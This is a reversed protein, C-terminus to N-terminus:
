PKVLRDKRTEQSTSWASTSLKKQKNIKGHDMKRTSRDEATKENLLESERVERRRKKKKPWKSGIDTLTREV